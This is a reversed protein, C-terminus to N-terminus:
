EDMQANIKELIIDSDLTTDEEEKAVLFVITDFKKDSGWWRKYLAAEVNLDIKNAYGVEENKDINDGFSNGIISILFNTLILFLFLLNLFWVLWILGIMTYTYTTGVAEEDAVDKEEAQLNSSWNPYEPVYIDGVSNRWTAILIILFTHLEPYDGAPYAGGLSYLQCSFVFVWFFLFPMFISMNKLTEKVLHMFLGFGEFMQFYFLLKIATYLIIPFSMVTLLDDIPEQQFSPLQTSPDLMRLVFYTLYTLFGFIDVWNMFSEFYADGQIKM